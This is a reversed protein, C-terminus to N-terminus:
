FPRVVVEMRDRDVNKLEECDVVARISADNEDKAIVATPVMALKKMGDKKEPTLIVAVWYIQGKMKGGKYTYSQLEAWGTPEYPSNLLRHVSTDSFYYM